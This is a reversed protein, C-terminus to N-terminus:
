VAVSSLADASQVFFLHWKPKSLPLSKFKLHIPFSKKMIKDIEFIITGNYNCVRKNEISRPYTRVLKPSMRSFNVWIVWYHLLTLFNNLLWNKQFHHLALGLWIAFGLWKSWTHGALVWHDCEILIWWQCGGNPLLPLGGNLLVICFWNKRRFLSKSSM